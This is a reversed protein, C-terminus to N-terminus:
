HPIVQHQEYMSQGAVVVPRADPVDVCSKAVCEVLRQRERGARIALSREAEPERRSGTGDTVPLEDVVFLTREAPHHKLRGTGLHLLECSAVHDQRGRGIRAEDLGHGNLPAVAIPDVDEAAEHEASEGLV